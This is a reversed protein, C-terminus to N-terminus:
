VNKNEKKEKKFEKFSENLIQLPLSSEIKGGSGHICDYLWEYCYSEHESNINVSKKMYNILMELQKEAEAASIFRKVYIRNM